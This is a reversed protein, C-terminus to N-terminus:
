ITKEHSERDCIAQDLTNELEPFSDKLWPRFRDVIMHIDKLYESPQKKEEIKQLKGVDILIAKNDLCGFNWQIWADHDYVGKLSRLVILDVISELLQKAKQSDGNHMYSSIADCIPIAKKQIIFEHSDLDIGYKKGSKDSLMLKKRLHSTKNLHAYIIASEHKLINAAISYSTFDRMLKRQRDAVVAYAREKIKNPLPYHAYFPPKLRSHRFFKIVYQDDESIFAFCQGGCGLYRYPQNTALELDRQEDLELPPTQWGENWSLDSSIKKPHFGDTRKKEWKQAIPIWAIFATLCFSILLKKRKM